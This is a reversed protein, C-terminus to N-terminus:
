DRGTEPSAARDQPGALIQSFGLICQVLERQGLGGERSIVLAESGSPDQSPDQASVAIVPINCIEPDVAKERLVAYGDMEPMLLDLLVVDPRRERMLALARQGNLARVVHYGRGAGHLIRAFLQMADLDDEVLLVTRVGDGLEALAGLLEEQTVPKVLYREIGLQQAARKRDFVSCFMVPTKYPMAHTWNAIEKDHMAKNVVLAQAPAQRLMEIAQARDTARVIEIDNSYARLLHELTKDEEVVIFRPCVDPPEALSRRTRPVYSDYPSFWRSAAPAKSPPTIERPLSFFFTAGHGPESEVWMRGGHRQVFTRSISLGLGTGGHRRLISDGAQRFPEFIREQDAPSLGPGTDAVSVTVQHGEDRVSVTVGGQETFRGANSLLNLIVQRIRTADCYLPPMDEPVQAKLALGKSEYLPRVAEQAEAVIELLSVWEKHLSVRGSEVASLDLVDDVLSALHQSNRHIVAIDALLAPSVAGSYIQPNQIIMESFGIIMNLPTRLEHSVNAVFEAKAQRAEEAAQRLTDLWNSLRALERNALLLDEQTQKLIVRQERAERLLADSREYNWWSWRMTEDASKLVLWTLGQTTWIVLLTAFGTIIDPAGPGIQGSVLLASAATALILGLVPHVLLAALLPPIALLPFAGPTYLWHAIFTITLMYALVVMAVGLHFWRRLILWLATPLFVLVTGLLSLQPAWLYIEALVVLIVGLASFGLLIAVTLDRRLDQHAERLFTRTSVTEAM